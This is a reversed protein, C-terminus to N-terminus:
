IRHIASFAHIGGDMWQKQNPYTKSTVTPVLDRICKKIFASVSDAYLDTNNESASRFM